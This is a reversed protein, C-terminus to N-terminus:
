RHSLFNTITRMKDEDVQYMENWDVSERYADIEERTAGKKRGNYYAHLKTAADVTFCTQHGVGDVTVLQVNPNKTHEMLYRSGYQIPVIPDDLSQMLLIRTDKCRDMGELCNLTAYEKFKKKECHVALSGAFPIKTFRKVMLKLSAPPAIAVVKEIGDFFKLALLSSYAGMSHGVLKLYCSKYDSDNRIYKIVDELDCLQQNFGGISSGESEMAGTQDFALVLFGAKCMAYIERTYSTHGGGHGHSFIILDRKPTYDEHFYFYCQLKNGDRSTIELPTRKLDPFIRYDFYKNWPNKDMRTGFLNDYLKLLGM